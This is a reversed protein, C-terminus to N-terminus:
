ADNDLCQGIAGDVLCGEALPHVAPAGFGYGCRQLELWAALVGRLRRLTRCCCSCRRGAPLLHLAAPALKAWPAHRRTHPTSKGPPVAGRRCVENHTTHEQRSARDREQVGRQEHTWQHGQHQQSSMSQEAPVTNAGTYAVAATASSHLWTSRMVAHQEYRAELLACGHFGSQSSASCSWAM